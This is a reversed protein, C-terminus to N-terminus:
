MQGHKYLLMGVHQGQVCVGVRKCYPCKLSAIFFPLLVQDSVSLLRTYFRLKKMCQIKVTRYSSEHVCMGFM